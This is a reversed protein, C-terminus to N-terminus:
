VQDKEWISHIDAGVRVSSVYRNGACYPYNCGLLMARDNIGEAGCVPRNMRVIDTGPVTRDHFQAACLTSCLFNLKFYRYGMEAYRDFVNRIFNRSKEVTPDLVFGYRRMCSFALCAHGNKGLLMMEDPLYQSIRAHPEAISPVVWLGPEFGM